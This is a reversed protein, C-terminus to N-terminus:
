IHILSLQYGEHLVCVKDFLDYADQSCQYTAIAASSSTMKANTELAKVFELATASDLGRTANDWCQFKSGCISVEAISVRKREGGSVGRVLENGVKTDRAHLLGYTAMTVETVHNAFAERDVGPVRNAPTSLLAAINLTEFVTLHPFHVDAEANYVVEGRYHKHIEMPSMGDYSIHSEKDIHFGHTNSSISKLLTSCGSGPRGLVVLLEGPKILGDMPKLIDFTDAPRAKRACRYAFEAIKLPLNAVTSQYTVDMSSGYARLNTWSCGLSYPKYFEPDSTVIKNLNRMWAVSSFSDSNPDLKPDYGAGGISSSFPNLNGASRDVFSSGNTLTKASDRICM